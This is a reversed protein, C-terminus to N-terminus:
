HLDFGLNEIWDWFLGGFYDWFGEGLVEGGGGGIESLLLGLLGDVLLVELLGAFFDLLDGLLRFCL